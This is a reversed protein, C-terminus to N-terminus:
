SGPVPQATEVPALHWDGGRALIFDPDLSSENANPAPDPDLISENANPAPQM